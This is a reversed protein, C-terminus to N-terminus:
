FDNAFEDNLIQTFRNRNNPNRQWNGFELNHIRIKDIISDDFKYSSFSSTMLQHKKMSKDIIILKLGKRLSEAFIDNIFRDRFSYGIAICTRIGEHSLNAKLRKYFFSFPEEKIQGFKERTPYILSRKYEESTQLREQVQEVEGTESNKWWDSSGHLKYILLRPVRSTEDFMKTDLIIKGIGM